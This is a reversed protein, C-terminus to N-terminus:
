CRCLTREMKSNATVTKLPWMLALEAACPSFGGAGCRVSALGCRAQLGKALSWARQPRANRGIPPAAERSLSRSVGDAPLLRRTAREYMLARLCPCELSAHCLLHLSCWWHVYHCVSMCLGVLVVLLPPWLCFFPLAPLPLLRAQTLARDKQPLANSAFFVAALILSRGWHSVYRLPARPLRCVCAVLSYQACHWAAQLSVALLSFSAEAFIDILM